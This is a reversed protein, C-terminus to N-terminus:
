KPTRSRLLPLKGDFRLALLDRKLAFSTPLRNGLTAFWDGHASIEAVWTERDVRTLTAFDSASFTSGVWDIDKLRPSWGLTTEQAGAPRRRFWNVCFIGPTDTLKRGMAIWHNFYDGM